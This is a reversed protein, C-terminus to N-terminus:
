SSPPPNNSDWTEFGYSKKDFMQSSSGRIEIGIQHSELLSDKHVIQLNASVKPEDVITNGKTNIKFFPLSNSNIPIEQIIETEESIVDSKSCSVALFLLATTVGCKLTM